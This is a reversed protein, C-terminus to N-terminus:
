ENLVIKHQLAILITEKGWNFLIYSKINPHYWKAGNNKM